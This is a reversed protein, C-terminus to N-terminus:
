RLLRAAAVRQVPTGDDGSFVRCVRHVRRVLLASADQPRELEHAEVMHRGVHFAARWDRRSDRSKLSNKTSSQHREMYVRTYLALICEQQQISPLGATTFLARIAVLAM